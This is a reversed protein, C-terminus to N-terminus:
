KPTQKGTRRKNNGDEGFQLRRGLIVELKYRYRLYGLLRILGYGAAAFVILARWPLVIVRDTAQTVQGTSGYWLTLQARYYGVRLPAGLPIDFWPTSILHRTAGWDFDFRRVDRPLVLGSEANLPIRDVLWGFENFIEVVGTPALHTNGLNEFRLVGEAPLGENLDDHFYFDVIEGTETRDGSVDVIYLAAIAADIASGLQREPNAANDVRFLVAGYYGGAPANRPIRITVPISAYVNPELKLPEDPIDVWRSLIGVYQDAAPTFFYPVGGEESESRFDVAQPRVTVATPVSVAVQLTGTWVQGPNLTLVTKAPVVSISRSLEQAHV